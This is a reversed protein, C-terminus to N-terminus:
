LRWRLEGPGGGGRRGKLWHSSDDDMWDPQRWRPGPKGRGLAAICGLMAAAMVSSWRQTRRACTAHAGQGARAWASRAPAMPRTALRGALPPLGCPQPSRLAVYALGSSTRGM